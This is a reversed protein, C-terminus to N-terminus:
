MSQLRSQVQKLNTTFKNRFSRFYQAIKAFLSGVSEDLKPGKVRLAPAKETSKTCAKKFENAKETLEPTLHESLLAFMKKWDVTEATTKKALSLEITSKLEFYCTKLDDYPGQLESTMAHLADNAAEFAAKAEDLSQKCDLYNKAARTFEASKHSTLEIVIKDDTETYTSTDDRDEFLNILQRFDQTKM